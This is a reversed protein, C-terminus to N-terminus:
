YKMLGTTVKYNDYNHFCGYITKSKILARGVLSGHPYKYIRDLPKMYKDKELKTLKHRFNLHLNSVILEGSDITLNSMYYAEQSQKVPITRHLGNTRTNWIVLGEFARSGRGLTVNDYTFYLKGNIGEIDTVMSTHSANPQPINPSIRNLFKGYDRDFVMVGHLGHAIYILNNEVHLGRATAYKYYKLGAPLTKIKKILIDSVRDTIYIKKDTLYFVEKEGIVIDNVRGELEHERQTKTLLNVVLVRTKRGKRFVFFAEKEDGEIFKLYTRTFGGQTKIADQCIKNATASTFFSELNTSAFASSVSLLMILIM